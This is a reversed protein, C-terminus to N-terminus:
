FVHKRIHGKCTVLDHHRNTRALTYIYCSNRLTVYNGLDHALDKLMIM